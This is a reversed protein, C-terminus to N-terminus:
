SELNAAQTAWSALCGASCFHLVADSPSDIVGVEMEDGSWELEDDDDDGFTFPFGMMVEISPREMHSGPEDAWEAGHRELRWWRRLDAEHEAATRTCSDGDCRLCATM